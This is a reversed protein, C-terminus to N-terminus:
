PALIFRKIFLPLITRAVISKTNAAAGISTVVVSTTACDIVEATSPVIKRGSPVGAAPTVAVM